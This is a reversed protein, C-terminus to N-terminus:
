DVISYFNASANNPTDVGELEPPITFGRDKCLKIMLIDYESLQAGTAVDAALEALTTEEAPPSLAEIMADLIEDCQVDPQYDYLLDALFRSSDSIHKGLQHVVNVGEECQLTPEADPDIPHIHYTDPEKYWYKFGGSEVHEVYVCGCDDDTFLFRM